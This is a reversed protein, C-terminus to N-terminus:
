NESEFQKRKEIAIKERFETLRDCKRCSIIKQNLNKIKPNM